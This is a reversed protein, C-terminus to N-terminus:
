FKTYYSLGGTVNSTTISYYWDARKVVHCGGLKFSKLILSISNFFKKLPQINLKTPNPKLQLSLIDVM